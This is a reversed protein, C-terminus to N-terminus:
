YAGRPRRKPHPTPPLCSFGVQVAERLEEEDELRLLREAHAWFGAPTLGLSWNEEDDGAGQIYAWSVGVLFCFDIGVVCV